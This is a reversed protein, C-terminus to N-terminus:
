SRRRAACRPCGGAIRLLMLHPKFVRLALSGTIRGVLFLLFGGFSLLVSAGRDTIRFQAANLYPSRAFLDASYINELFARNARVLQEGAPNSEVLKRQEDPLVTHM